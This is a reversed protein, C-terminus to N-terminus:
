LGYHQRRFPSPDTGALCLRPIYPRLRSDAVSSDQGRLGERCHVAPHLCEAALREFRAYLRAQKPLDLYRSRPCM